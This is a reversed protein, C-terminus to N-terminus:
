YTSKHWKEETSCYYHREDNSIDVWRQTKAVSNDKWIMSITHGQSIFISTNEESSATIIIMTIRHPHDGVLNGFRRRARYLIQVCFPARQPTAIWSVPSQFLINKITITIVEHHPHCNWYANQLKDNVAKEWWINPFLLTTKNQSIYKKLDSPTEIFGSLSTITSKGLNHNKLTKKKRYSTMNM